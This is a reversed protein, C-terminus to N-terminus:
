LSGRKKRLDGFLRNPGFLNLSSVSGVDVEESTLTIKFLCQIGARALESDSRVWVELTAYKCCSSELSPVRIPEAFDPQIRGSSDQLAFLSITCNLM